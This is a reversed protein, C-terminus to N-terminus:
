QDDKWQGEYKACNVNLYAENKCQGEYKTFNVHLYTGYGNAKNDEWEGIFVDGDIHTFKGHGELFYKYHNIGEWFLKSPHWQFDMSNKLGKSITEFLSLISVITFLILLFNKYKLILARM